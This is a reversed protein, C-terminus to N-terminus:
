SGIMNSEQLLQLLVTKVSQLQMTQLPINLEESQMLHAMIQAEDQMGIMQTFQQTHTLFQQQIPRETAQDQMPLQLLQQIEQYMQPQGLTQFLQHLSQMHETNNTQLLSQLSTQLVQPLKPMVQQEVMHKLLVYQEDT